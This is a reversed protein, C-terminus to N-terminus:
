HIGKTLSQWVLVWSTRSLHEVFGFFEPGSKASGVLVPAPYLKHFRDEESDETAHDEAHANGSEVQAEPGPDEVASVPMLALQALRVVGTRPESLDTCSNPHEPADPREQPRSTPTGSSLAQVRNAPPTDWDLRTGRTRKLHVHGAAEDFRSSAGLWWLHPGWLQATGARSVVHM